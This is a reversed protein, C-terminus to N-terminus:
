AALAEVHTNMDSDTLKRHVRDILTDLKRADIFLTQRRRDRFVRKADAAKNERPILRLRSDAYRLFAPPSSRGHLGRPRGRHHRRIDGEGSQNFSMTGNALVFGAM